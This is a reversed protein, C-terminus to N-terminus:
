KELWDTIYMMWPKSSHTSEWYRRANDANTMSEAVGLATNMADLDEKESETSCKKNKLRAIRNRLEAAEAAYARQEMIPGYPIKPDWYDRAHQLEHAWQGAREGGTLRQGTTTDYPWVFPVPGITIGDLGLPDRFNVPNDSCFVYQNLGGSIGIPDNSLWRATVPDYWRIIGNCPNEGATTSPEEALISWITLTDSFTEAQANCASLDILSSTKISCEIHDILLQNM